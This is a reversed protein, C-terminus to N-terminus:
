LSLVRYNKLPVWQGPKPEIMCGQFFGWDHNVGMKKAQSECGYGSTVFFTAFVMGFFIMLVAVIELFDHSIRNSM